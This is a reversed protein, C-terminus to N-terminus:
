RIKEQALLRALPWDGSAKAALARGVREAHAKEIAARMWTYHIAGCRWLAEKVEDESAPADTDQAYYRQVRRAHPSSEPPLDLAFVVPLTKKRLRLDSKGVSGPWVAAIDNMLQMLLGLHWGFQAYLAVEEENSTGVCAGVEAACRVLSASKLGSVLVAEEVTVPSLGELEMDRVQGRMADMALADIARMARVVRDSPVGREALRAIAAHCLMLLTYVTELTRGCTRRDGPPAVEGDEIDDILECAAMLLEMAAVAPVAELSERRGASAFALFTLAACLSPKGEPLVRSPGSLAALAVGELGVGLRAGQVLGLLEDRIAQTVEASLLPPGKSTAVPM